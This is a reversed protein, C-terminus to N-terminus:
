GIEDRELAVPVFILTVPSKCHGKGSSGGGGFPVQFDRTMLRFRCDGHFM